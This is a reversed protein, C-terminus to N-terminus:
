FSQHIHSATLLVQRDACTTSILLRSYKCVTPQEKKPWKIPAVIDQAFPRQHVSAAQIGDAVWKGYDPDYMERYSRGQISPGFHDRIADGVLVLRFEDDEADRDAITFYGNFLANLVRRVDRPDLAPTSMLELAARWRSSFVSTEVDADQCVYPTTTTHRQITVSLANAAAARNAYLRGTTGGSTDCVLVARERQDHLWMILGTLAVPVVADDVYSVRVYAGFSHEAMVFGLNRMVFEAFPRGRLRTGLRAALEELGWAEGNEDFLVCYQSAM